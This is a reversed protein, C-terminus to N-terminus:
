CFRTLKEMVCQWVTKHGEVVQACMERKVFFTFERSAAVLDSLLEANSIFYSFSSVHPGAMLSDQMKANPKKLSVNSVTLIANQM